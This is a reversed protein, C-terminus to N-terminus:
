HEVSDFELSVREQSLETYSPLKVKKVSTIAAGSSPVAVQDTPGKLLVAKRNAKSPAKVEEDLYALGVERRLEQRLMKENQVGDQIMKGFDERETKIFGGEALAIRGVFFSLALLVITYNFGFRKM